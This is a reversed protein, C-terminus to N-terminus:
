LATPNHSSVASCTELSWKSRELTAIMQQEGENKTNFVNVVGQSTGIAVLKGRVCMATPLGIEHRREKMHSTFFPLHDVRIVGQSAKRVRTAKREKKQMDLAKRKM